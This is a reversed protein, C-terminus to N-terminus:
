GEEKFLLNHHEFEENLNHDEVDSIQAKRLQKYVVTVKGVFDVGDFKGNENAPTYGNLNWGYASLSVQEWKDALIHTGRVGDFLRYWNNLTVDVTEGSIVTVLKTHDALISKSDYKSKNVYCWAIRAHVLTKILVVDPADCGVAVSQVLQEIWDPMIDKSDKYAVRAPCRLFHIKGDTVPSYETLFLIVWFYPQILCFM